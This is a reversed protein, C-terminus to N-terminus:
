LQKVLRFWVMYNNDKGYSQSYKNSLPTAVDLKMYWDRSKSYTLGVGAGALTRSNDASLPNANYRVYGVDYFLSLQLGNIPTDYRYEFTGQVGVDGSAEGTTFARVGNPGGIYIDESSDLNHGYSWQGNVNFYLSSVPSLKRIYYMSAASKEFHTNNRAISKAAEATDTSARLVGVTTGMQYGFMNYADRAYGKWALEVTDTSKGDFRENADGTVINDEIWRHRYALDIFSAHSFARSLPITTGIELTKSNGTYNIDANSWIDYTMRSFSARAKSGERGVPIEYQFLYNDMGRLNSTVYNGQIQDGRHAINNYHYGIGYRYRGTSHSGYNDVYVSAGQKELNEVDVKLKATGVAEGPTLSAKARVGALDNLILLQKNLKEAYILDGPQIAHVYGKIADESVMSKDDVSIEDYSGLVVNMTLQHDQMDQKPMYIIATPYGLNRIKETAQEALKVLTNFSVEGGLQPDMLEHVMREMYELSYKKNSPAFETLRDKETFNLEVGEVYILEDSAQHARKPMEIAFEPTSKEEPLIHREPELENLLQGADIPRDNVAADTQSSLMGIMSALLISLCLKFGRNKNM